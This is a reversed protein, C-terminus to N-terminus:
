IRDYFGEGTRGLLILAERLEERKREYREYLEEHEKEAREIRESLEAALSDPSLKALSALTEKAIKLRELVKESLTLAEELTCLEEGIDAPDAIIKSQAAYCDSLCYYM